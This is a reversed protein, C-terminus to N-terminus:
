SGTSSSSGPAQAQPAPAGPAQQGSHEQAEREPSENNEHTADENPHGGGPGGPGHGHKGHPFAKGSDEAAEREPSENAEHTTDENPGSSAGPDSSDTASSSDTSPTQANALTPGFLAAGVGAGALLSGAIAAAAVTKKM